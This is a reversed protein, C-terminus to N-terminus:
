ATEVSIGLSFLIQFIHVIVCVGQIPTGLSAPGFGAADTLQMLKFGASVKHLLLFKREELPGPENPSTRM